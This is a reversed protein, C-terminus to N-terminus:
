GVRTGDGPMPRSGLASRAVVAAVASVAIGLLAGAAVDHLYHVGEFVRAAAVVIAVLVAAGAAWWRRTAVAIVVAAAFALTAHNSPLSWDGMPPCETATAWRECPRPQQFLLKTGESAAYALVVGVASGAVAPRRSPHRRWAWFVALATAAALVLLALDASRDVGPLSTGIGAAWRTSVVSLSGPVPAVLAVAALVALAIVPVYHNRVLVPRM